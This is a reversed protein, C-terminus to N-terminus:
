SHLLVLRLQPTLVLANLVVFERIEVWVQYFTHWHLLHWHNIGVLENMHAIHLLVLISGFVLIMNDNLLLLQPLFLYEIVFDNM